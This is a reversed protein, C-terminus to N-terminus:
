IFKVNQEIWDAIAPLSKKENDNLRYFISSRNPNYRDLYDYISEKKKVADYNDIFNFGNVLCAVGIACYCDGHRLQGEDTEQKYKGSRLAEVWKKTFTRPLKFEKM